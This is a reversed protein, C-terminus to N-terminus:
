EIFRDAPIGKLWWFQYPKLVWGKKGGRSIKKATVVDVWEEQDGWLNAEPPAQQSRSTVNYLAIISEAGDTATRRLAFLHDGM